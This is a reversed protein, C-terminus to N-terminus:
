EAADNLNSCPALLALVLNPAAARYDCRGFDEVVPRLAICAIAARKGLPLSRDLRKLAPEHCRQALYDLALYGEFTPPYEFAVSGMFADVKPDDIQSLARALNYRQGGDDTKKYAAILLDPHKRDALEGEIIAVHRDREQLPCDHTTNPNMAAFPNPIAAKEKLCDVLQRDSLAKIKAAVGDATPSNPAQAACAFVLTLFTAAVASLSKM